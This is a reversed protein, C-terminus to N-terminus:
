DLKTDQVMVHKQHRADDRTKTDQTDQVDRTKPTKCWKRNQTDQVM